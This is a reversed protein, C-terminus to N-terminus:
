RNKSANPFAAKLDPSSNKLFLARKGFKCNGTNIAFGKAALRRYDMDLTATAVSANADATGAVTANDGAYPLTLPSPRTYPATVGPGVAM